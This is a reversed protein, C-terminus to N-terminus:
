HINRAIEQATSFAHGLDAAFHAARWARKDEEKFMEVDYKEYNDFQYTNYAVVRSTPHKFVHGIEAELDDWHNPYHFKQALEPTCNCSYLMTIPVPKPALSEHNLHYTNKSFMARELFSHLMGTINGFYTPSAIALADVEFVEAVLEHIDDKVPCTGYFKGQKQKCAFCSRCGTYKLNYLFIKKVEAEPFVSQYGKIWEELLQASNGNVRPSANIAIVKMTPTM